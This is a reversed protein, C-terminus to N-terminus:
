RMLWPGILDLPLGAAVIFVLTCFAALGMSLAALATLSRGPSALATLASATVIAPVFGLGRVTFGFVIPAIMILTLGRWPVYHLPASTSRWAQLGILLGLFTLLISLLLPFFGPGMRAPSGIPIRFYAELGFALGVLIFFGGVRLEKYNLNM